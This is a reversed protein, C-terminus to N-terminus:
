NANKDDAARNAGMYKDAAEEPSISGQALDFFGDAFRAMITLPYYVQDMLIQQDMGQGVIDVRQGLHFAIHGNRCNFQFRGLKFEPNIRSIYKAVVDESDSLQNPLFVYSQMAAIASPKANFM